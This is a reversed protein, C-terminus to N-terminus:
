LIKLKNILQSIKNYVLVKSDRAWLYDMHNFKSFPVKYVEVVNPLKEILYKVDTFNSLWDNNGYIIAIPCTVRGVEYVPPVEKAYVELNKLTGYDYQSFKGSNIEQLYHNIQKSSSGSNIHTFIIPLKPINMQEYDFGILLFITTSCLLLSQLEPGCLLIKIMKMLPNDPIVEWYEYIESIMREEASFQALARVLPSKVHSMWAATAMSVMLAIKKNYEVRESCMVYFATTGQSHGIYILQSKFTFALIYDIIAPLDYYGIEHWSFNWFEKDRDPSLYKHKRSYKNGRANGLWVDYGEAALMYALGRDRGPTVFDDACLLLGHMLLVSKGNSPIRILTLEYGDETTVYHEEVSFKNKRILQSTNFYFEERIQYHSANAIRKSIENGSKSAVNLLGIIDVELDDAVSNSNFIDFATSSIIFYFSFAVSRM